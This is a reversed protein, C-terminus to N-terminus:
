PYIYIHINCYIEISIEKPHGIGENGACGQRPGLPKKPLPGGHYPIMRDASDGLSSYPAFALQLYSTPLLGHIAM